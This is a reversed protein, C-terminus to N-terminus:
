KTRLEVNSELSRDLITVEDGERLYMGDWYGHTLYQAFFVGKGDDNPKTTDRGRRTMALAKGVTKNANQVGTKQDVYPIACRKCPRVVYAMMEGVQIRRWYDEDYPELGEGNVVINPRFRNMSVATGGIEGTITRNLEDLSPRSAMLMPFGDAFGTVNSAGVQQYRDKIQRFQSFGDASYGGLPFSPVAILEVKRGLYSHFWEVAPDDVCLGSVKNGHLGANVAAYSYSEPAHLIETPEVGPASVEMLVNGDSDAELINPQVLALRPETRQSIMQYNEDILMFHRDLGLGRENIQTVSRQVGACSKIPYEYLAEVKIESMSFM